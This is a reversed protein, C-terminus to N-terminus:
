LHPPVIAKYLHIFARVSLGELNIKILCSSQCYASYANLNFKRNESKGMVNRIGTQLGLVSQFVIRRYLWM